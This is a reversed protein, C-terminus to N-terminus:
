YQIAVNANIVGAEMQCLQAINEPLLGIRLKECAAVVAAVTRDKGCEFRIKDIELECFLISDHLMTYFEAEKIKAKCM